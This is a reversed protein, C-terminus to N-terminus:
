SNNNLALSAEIIERDGKLTFDHINIILVRCGYTLLTVHYRERGNDSAKTLAENFSTLIAAVVASSTNCDSM